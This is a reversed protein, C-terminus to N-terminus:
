FCGLCNMTSQQRPRLRLMMTSDPENRTTGYTYKHHIPTDVAGNNMGSEDRLLVTIVGDQITTSEFLRRLFIMLCQLSKQTKQKDMGICGLKVTYTVDPPIM